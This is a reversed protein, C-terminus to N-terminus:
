DPLVEAEDADSEVHQIYDDNTTRSSMLTRVRGANSSWCNTSVSLTLRRRCMVVAPRDIRGGLALVM